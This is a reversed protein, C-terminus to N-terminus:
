PKKDLIMIQHRVERWYEITDSEDVELSVSRDFWCVPLGLIQEVVIVAADYVMEDIVWSKDRIDYTCKSIQRVIEKAKDAPTM